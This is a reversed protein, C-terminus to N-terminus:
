LPISEQRIRTLFDDDGGTESVIDVRRGLLTELEQGLGALDFLSAGEDFGVLLDIDSDPRDDGRAISGFMRVSTARNARAIAWMEERYRDILLSPRPHLALHLRALTEPRPVTAGSEYSSISPQHIGSRAALQAQTLGARQRAVALELAIEDTRM